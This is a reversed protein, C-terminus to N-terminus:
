SDFKRVAEEMDWNLINEIVYRILTLAKKQNAGGPEPGYFNNSNFEKQRGILTNEYDLFITDM